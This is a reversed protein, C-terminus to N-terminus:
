LGGTIAWLAPVLQVAPLHRGASVGWPRQATGTWGGASVPRAARGAALGAGLWSQSAQLQLLACSRCPGAALVKDVHVALHAQHGHAERAAARLRGHAVRVDAGAHGEAAHLHLVQQGAAAAARQAEERARELCALGARPARQAAAQQWTGPRKAQKSAPPATGGTVPEAASSRSGIPRTSAEARRSSGAVLGQGEHGAGQQCAIGAASHHSQPCCSRLLLSPCRNTCRSTCGRDGGCLAGHSTHGAVSSLQKGVQVAKLGLSALLLSPM